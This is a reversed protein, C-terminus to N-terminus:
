RVRKAPLELLGSLHGALVEPASFFPSHGTQMAIVRECPITKYMKKQLKWPIAKDLVTEIFVRPVRGFNEESTKIPAVVPAIAQPVLRRKAEAVVDGSCDGYFIEAIAEDRVMASLKDDSLIQNRLILSDQDSSLIDLMSEGNRPILGALYVLRELRDPHREAVGTIVGGGMSHGVLTVPKSQKLLVESVREVYAAMTVDCVPTRDSGHGPLDVAIVGHGAREVLPVVKEWVWAGHWAGHVLVVIGM